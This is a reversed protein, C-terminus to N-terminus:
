FHCFFQQFGFIISLLTQNNFVELSEITDLSLVASSNLTFDTWNNVVRAVVHPIGALSTLLTEDVLGESIGGIAVTM